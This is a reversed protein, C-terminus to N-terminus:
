YENCVKQSREIHMARPISQTRHVTPMKLMKHPKPFASEKTKFHPYFM